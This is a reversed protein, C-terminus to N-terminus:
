LLFWEYGYVLFAPLLSERTTLVKCTFAQMLGSGCHEACECRESYRVVISVARLRCCILQYLVIEPLRNQM